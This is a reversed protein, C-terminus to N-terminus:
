LAVMREVPRPLAALEPDGAMAHRIGIDARIADLSDIERRCLQLWRDIKPRPKRVPRRFPKM